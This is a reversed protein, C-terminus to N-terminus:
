ASAIPAGMESTIVTALEDARQRLGDSLRALVAAREAPSLRPWTGHDFAGRAAAVARDMDAETGEPVRGVLEETSPCVVDFKAAGAPEIWRGGIYLQDWEFM